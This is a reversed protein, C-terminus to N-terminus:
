SSIQRVSRRVTRFEEARPKVRGPKQLDSFGTKQASLLDDTKPEVRELDIGDRVPYRDGLLRRDLESDHPTVACRSASHDQFLVAM